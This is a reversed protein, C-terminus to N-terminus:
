DDIVDWDCVQFYFDDDALLQESSGDPNMMWIEGPADETSLVNYALMTGDPSWVAGFESSDPTDTIRQETEGNADMVYLDEGEDSSYVSFAIFAGDPSYRARIDARDNDTLQQVDDGETTMTYLEYDGDRNSHFIIREGDPSWSPFRDASDNDTLQVFNDGDADMIYIESRNQDNWFATGMFVIRAGDPSFQPVTEDDENFTLRRVGTGDIDAIYIESHFFGDSEGNRENPNNFAFHRGEPAIDGCINSSSERDAITTIGDASLLNIAFFYGEDANDPVPASQFLLVTDGLFDTDVTDNEGAFSHSQGVFFVLLLLFMIRHKM